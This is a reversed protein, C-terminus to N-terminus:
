KDSRGTIHKGAYTITKGEVTCNYLMIDRKFDRLVICCPAGSDIFSFVDDDCELAVTTPGLIVYGTIDRCYCKGLNSFVHVLM